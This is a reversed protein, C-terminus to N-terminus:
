RKLQDRCESTQAACFTERAGLVAAVAADAVAVVKESTPYGFFMVRM